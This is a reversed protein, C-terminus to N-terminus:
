EGAGRAAGELDPLPAALSRGLDAATVNAGSVIAVVPGAGAVQGSLLAAVAAAGSPEVLVREREILHRMAPFLAEDPLRVIGEALAEVLRRTRESVARPALGDAVTRVSDLTVVRGAEISRLMSDAGDMEAGVLRASPAGHALGVGIGAALGGGGIPAVVRDVDPLAAAIERGVTAQGAIVAPDDFPHVWDAGAAAAFAAGREAAEQYDRGGAVVEAGEDRIAAVKVPNANAPVFVTVPVAALRGAFAVALGHNGSSATVVRHVRGDAVIEALRALAGRVKFARIPTVTELKLWVPRGLHGSLSPSHVLPTPPMVLRVARSAADLRRRSLGQAAMWRKRDTDRGPM